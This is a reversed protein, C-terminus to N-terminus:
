GMSKIFTEAMEMMKECNEKMEPSGEQGMFEKFIKEVKNM